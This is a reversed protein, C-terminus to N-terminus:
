VGVWGKELSLTFVVLRLRARPHEEVILEVSDWFFRWELAELSQLFHLAQMYTGAIELELGHKFIRAKPDATAVGSAEAVSATVPAAQLTRMSRVELPGARKLLQGLAETMQEPGILGTTAGALKSELEPIRSKYKRIEERTLRDPDIEGQDVIAQISAELGSVEARLAQVEQVLAKRERERPASFGSDWVTIILALVAVLVLARERVSLMDFRDYLNRLFPNM